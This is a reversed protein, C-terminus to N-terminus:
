SHVSYDAAYRKQQIMDVVQERLHPDTIMRRHAEFVMAVETGLRDTIAKANQQIEASLEALCADLRQIEREIRAAPIHHRSIRVGKQDLVLAPGIAVGPFVAIVRITEM